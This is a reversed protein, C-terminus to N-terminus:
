FHPHSQGMYFLAAGVIASMIIGVALVAFVLKIRKRKEFTAGTM